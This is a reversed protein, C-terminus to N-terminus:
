YTKCISWLFGRVANVSKNNKQGSACLRLSLVLLTTLSQLPPDQPFTGLFSVVNGRQLAM